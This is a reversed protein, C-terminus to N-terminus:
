GAPRMNGEAPLESGTISAYLTETDLDAGCPWEVVRLEPHVRVQEFEERDALAAFVGELPVLDTVDVEGHAGDDFVVSLRTGSLAEVKAVDHLM